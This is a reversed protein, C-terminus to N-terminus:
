LEKKDKFKKFKDKIVTIREVDQWNGDSDICATIITIKLFQRQM